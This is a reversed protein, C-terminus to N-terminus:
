LHLSINNYTPVLDTEEDNSVSSLEEGIAEPLGAALYEVVGKWSWQDFRAPTIVDNDVDGICILLIAGGDVPMTDPLKESILHIADITDSLTWDSLPVGECVLKLSQLVAVGPVVAM